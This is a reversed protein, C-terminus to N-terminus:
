CFIQYTQYRVKFTNLLFTSFDELIPCVVRRMFVRAYSCATCCIIRNTLYKVKFTNLLLIFFVTCVGRRLFFWHFMMEYIKVALIMGKFIHLLFLRLSGFAILLSTCIYFQFHMYPSLIIVFFLVKVRKNDSGQLPDSRSVANQSKNKNKNKNNKWKPRLEYTLQLM